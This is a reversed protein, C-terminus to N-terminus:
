ISAKQLSPLSHHDFGFDSRDPSRNGNPSACRWLGSLRSSGAAFRRGRVTWRTRRHRGRGLPSPRPSPSRRERISCSPWDEWVLPYECFGNDLLWTM